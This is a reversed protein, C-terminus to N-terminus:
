YTKAVDRCERPGYFTNNTFDILTEMESAGSIPVTKGFFEIKFAIDDTEVFHKPGKIIDAVAGCLTRERYPQATLNGDLMDGERKRGIAYLATPKYLLRGSILEEIMQVRQEASLKSEM